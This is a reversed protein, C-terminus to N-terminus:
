ECSEVDGYDLIDKETSYSGVTGNYYHAIIKTKKSHYCNSFGTKTKKFMKAFTASDAILKEQGILHVRIDTAQRIRNQVAYVLQIAQKMKQPNGPKLVVKGNLFSSSDFYSRITSNFYLDSFANKTLSLVCKHDFKGVYSFRPVHKQWKLAYKVINNVLRNTEPEDSLIEDFNDQSEQSEDGFQLGGFENKPAWDPHPDKFYRQFEKIFPNQDLSGFGGNGEFKLAVEVVSKMELAKYVDGPSTVVVSFPYGPNLSLSGGTFRCLEDGNDRDDLLKNACTAAANYYGLGGVLVATNGDSEARFVFACFFVGFVVLFKLKDM